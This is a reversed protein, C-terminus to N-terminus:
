KAAAPAGNRKPPEEAGYELDNPNAVKDDKGGGCGLCFGFLCLWIILGPRLM